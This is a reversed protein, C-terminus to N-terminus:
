EDDSYEKTTSNKNIEEQHRLLLYRAQGVKEEFSLSFDASLQELLVRFESYQKRRMNDDAAAQELSHKNAKEEAEDTNQIHEETENNKNEDSCYGFVSVILILFLSLFLIRIRM